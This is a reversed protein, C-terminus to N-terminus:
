DLHFSFSDPQGMNSTGFPVMFYSASVMAEVDDSKPYNIHKAVKWTFNDEAKAMAVAFFSPPLFCTAGFDLAVVKGDPGEKFNGPNIDCPCLRLGDHADDM